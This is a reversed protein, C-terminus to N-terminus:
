FGKNVILDPDLREAFFELVNQVSSVAMREAAQWTLGAIHPTLVV